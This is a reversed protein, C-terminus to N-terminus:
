RHSHLAVHAPLPLDPARQGRRSPARGRDIRRRQMGRVHGREDSRPDAHMEPLEVDGRRLPGVVTATETLTAAFPAKRFAAEQDSHERAADYPLAWWWCATESSRGM